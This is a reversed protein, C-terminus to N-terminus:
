MLSFLRPKFFDGAPAVARRQALEQIDVVEGVQAHEKHVVVGAVLRNIGTGALLQGYFLEGFQGCLDYAVFTTDVPVRAAGVSCGALEKVHRFGGAEAPCVLGFEFSRRSSSISRKSKFHYGLRM